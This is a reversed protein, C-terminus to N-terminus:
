PTGTGELEPFPFIFRKGSGTPEYTVLVRSVYPLQAAPEFYFEVECTKDKKLKKVGTCKDKGSTRKFIGEGGEPEVKIIEIEETATYIVNKNGSPTKEKVTGFNLKGVSSTVGSPVEQFKNGSALKFEAAGTLKAEASGVKLEGPTAIAAEIAQTAKEEQGTPLTAAAEGTVANKGSSACSAGNLKFTAFLESANVPKFKAKDAPFTGLTLEALLPLTGITTGELTCTSPKVITCEKFVLSAAALRSPGIIEPSTGSLAKCEVEVGSFTLIPNKTTTTATALAATSGSALETGEIFWGASASSAALACVTSVVVFAAIAQKFRFMGGIERRLPQRAIFM